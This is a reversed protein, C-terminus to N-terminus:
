CPAEGATGCPCCQIFETALAQCAATAKSYPKALNQKYVTYGAKYYDAAWDIFDELSDFESDNRIAAYIRRLNYLETAESM